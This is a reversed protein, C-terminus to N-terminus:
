KWCTWHIGLLLTPNIKPSGKSAAPVELPTVQRSHENMSDKQPQSTPNPYRAPRLPFHPLPLRYPWSIHGQLAFLWIVHAVVHTQGSAKDEVLRQKSRAKSWAPICSVPDQAFTRSRRGPHKVGSAGGPNPAFSLPGPQITAPACHLTPAPSLSSMPQTKLSMSGEFPGFLGVFEHFGDLMGFAQLANRVNQLLM